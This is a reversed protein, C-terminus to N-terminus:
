DMKPVRNIGVTSPLKVADGNLEATKAWWIHKYYVRTGCYNTSGVRVHKKRKQKPQNVIFPGSSGGISYAGHLQVRWGEDLQPMIVHKCVMEHIRDAERKKEKEWEEDTKIWSPRRDFDLTIGAQKAEAVTMAANVIANLKKKPMNVFTSTIGGVWDNWGGDTTGGSVSLTMQVGDIIVEPYSGGDKPVIEIKDKPVAFYLYSGLKSTWFKSGNARYHKFELVDVERALMKPHDFDFSARNPLYGVKLIIFPAEDTTMFYEDIVHTKKSVESLLM